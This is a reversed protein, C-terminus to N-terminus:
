NPAFLIFAIFKKEEFYNKKRLIIKKKFKLSFCTLIREFGVFIWTKLHNPSKNSYFTNKRSEARFEGHVTVTFWDCARSNGLRPLNSWFTLNRTYHLCQTSIVYVSIDHDYVFIEAPATHTHLTYPWNETTLLLVSHKKERHCGM